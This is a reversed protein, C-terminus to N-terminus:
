AHGQSIAKNIVHLAKRGVEPIMILQNEGVMLWDAATYIGASELADIVKKARDESLPGTRL